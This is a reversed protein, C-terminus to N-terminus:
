NKKGTKANRIYRKLTEPEVGTEINEHIFNASLTDIGKIKVDFYNYEICWDIFVQLTKYLKFKGDEKYIQGADILNQLIKPIDGNQKKQKM